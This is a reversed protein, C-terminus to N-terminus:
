TSWALTRGGDNTGLMVIHKKLCLHCLRLLFKLAMEFYGSMIEKGCGEFMSQWILELFRFTVPRHEPREEIVKVVIRFRIRSDITLFLSLEQLGLSFSYNMLPKMWLYAKILAVVDEHELWSFLLTAFPSHYTTYITLLVETLSTKKAYCIIARFEEPQYRATKFMSSMESRFITDHEVLKIKKIKVEKNCKKPTADIDL